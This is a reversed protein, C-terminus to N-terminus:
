NFSRLDHEAQEIERNLREIQDVLAKVIERDIDEDFTVAHNITNQIGERLTGKSMQLNNMIRTQLLSNPARRGRDLILQEMSMQIGAERQNFEVLKAKDVDDLMAGSALKKLVSLIGDPPFYIYALAGGIRAFHKNPFGFESTRHNEKITRVEDRFYSVFGLVELLGSMYGENRLIEQDLKTLYLPKPLLQLEFLKCCGHSQAGLPSAATRRTFTSGPRTEGTQCAVGSSPQWGLATM